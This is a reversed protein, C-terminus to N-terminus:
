GLTVSLASVSVAMDGKIMTTLGKVTTMGVSNIDIAAPLLNIKNAGMKQEIGTNSLNISSGGVKLIIGKNSLEISSGGVKLTIKQPATVEIEGTGKIQIKRGQDDLQCLNGSQTKIEIKKNEDDLLVQHGAKTKLDIAKKTDQLHLQHGYVTTLYVEKKSEGKDERVFQLTHGTRTKLTRLRVKGDVVAEEVSAPPADKGNWVGGIVFPRYIDGHEFGVLVEDNM